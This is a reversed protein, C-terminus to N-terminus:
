RARGVVLDVTMGKSAAAVGALPAQSVVHGPDGDAFRVSLTLHRAALKARAERLSLGVVKPVVGHLAKPMVLTVKDYSSLTGGAPYQGVVIDVRQLARAPKYVLTPTLPQAELRRRAATLTSGVVRPVDVENLKCDATPPSTVSAFWVVSQTDRCYGNDLELRGDRVVVRRTSQYPMQASPFSLAPKHLYPLATEMFSKWILAPYTGGAVPGGHFESTMPVLKNPYGVWVATVLNPTFGVFWADGYNETTGTKGAVPRGDPLQAARGTGEKVVNQLLEDVLAATSSSIGVGRGPNQRAVPRNDALV